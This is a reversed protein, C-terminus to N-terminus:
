SGTGQYHRVGFRWAFSAILLIIPGALPALWGAWMPVTIPTAKNLLLRAPFYNIFAMPLIYIFFRQLRKSYVEIPHSLLENGGYTLINFAELSQVTWFTLTAQFVFLAAYFAAGSLISATLLALEVPTFHMGTLHIALLLVAIGQSMRGMRRLMFESTIVQFFLGQPRILLADFTGQRILNPFYDFGAGFMEALAFSTSSMGYLLAMEGMSWGYLTPIHQFTILIVVFDIFSSTFNALVEAVFSAKYQMQSRIRAGILAFYLGCWEAM